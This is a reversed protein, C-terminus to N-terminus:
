HVAMTPQRNPCRLANHHRSLISFADLFLLCVLISSVALLRNRPQLPMRDEAGRYDPESSDQPVRHKDQTARTAQTARPPPMCTQRQDRPQSAPSPHSPRPVIIVCPQAHGTRHVPVHADSRSSRSPMSSPTAHPPRPRARTSPVEAPSRNPPPICSAIAAQDLISAKEPLQHRPRTEPRATGLAEAVVERPSHARGAARERHHGEQAFGGPGVRPCCSSAVLSGSACGAAQRCVWPGPLRADPSPRTSVLLSHMAQWLPANFGM